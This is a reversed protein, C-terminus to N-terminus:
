NPAILNACRDHASLRILVSKYMLTHKSRYPAHCTGVSCACIYLRIATSQEAPVTEFDGKLVRMIDVKRKTDMNVPEKKKEM